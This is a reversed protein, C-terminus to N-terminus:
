ILLVFSNAGLTDKILLMKSANVATGCLAGNTVFVSLSISVILFTKEKRKKKKKKEREGKKENNDHNSKFKPLIKELM